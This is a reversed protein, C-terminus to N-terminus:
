SARGRFCHNKGFILRFAKLLLLFLIILLLIFLIRDLIVAFIVAFFGQAGEYAVNASAFLNGVIKKLGQNKYDVIAIDVGYTGSDGLPGITAVYATKEENVRLLFSFIKTSDSPHRLTVVISKLVEPIKKYDLSVTLNKSGDIAVNKGSLTTIRKGDQIFDFDIFSLSEIVPHVNLAQPLEEFVPPTEEIPEGPLAIRASSLLGSSYAGSTDKAFLAYYYRKGSIVETDRFELSRGEYITSGDTPGSPYFNEGRVIRVEGFFASTPNVWSLLISNTEPTAKFSSANVGYESVPSTTFRGEPISATLGYGNLVELSFFYETGPLLNGLTLQHDVAYSTESVLGQEMNSSLGWAVTGLTPQTTKWSVVASTEGPVVSVDYIVPYMYQGSGGGSGGGGSSVPTTFTTASSTASRLSENSAADIASVVYAYLTSASLGTDSYNLGVVTTVLANDRYIRYGTVAVDDTSASWSLNIQSSSVATALLGAPTSPPTVDPAGTVTLDIEFQDEVASVTTFSSLLFTVVLSAAIIRFSHKM